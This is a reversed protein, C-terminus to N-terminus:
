APASALNRMRVLNYAALALSFMWDVRALGRHRTKRLGGVTKVWGFIEEVRKRKRQSVAYGPHRTTRRDITSTQRRAFHPTVQYERMEQVLEKRDYGKDAGLTIRRWGPIQEVMALAAEPEARGTAKTVCCNVALGHRNEMLVHGAYSLKAEKGAGKRALLAEPDTTSRHTDNSRQEGHFDVSPNGPDDDRPPTAAAKGDKRKFSKQGAWAEILTGDVTFHEDSLLGRRRAQALVAAFFAEAVEGKLLRDRNKTFVTVDWVPDDTSLGVFWRFLFNYDLQEMLLRESRVTYLVQLLLARLLREPAISPRGVAAYIGDFRRSLDKLATDAM